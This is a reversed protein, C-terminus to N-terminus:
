SAATTPITPGLSTVTGSLISGDPLTWSMATPVNTATNISSMDLWCLVNATKGTAVYCQAADARASRVASACAIAVFFAVFLMTKRIVARDM